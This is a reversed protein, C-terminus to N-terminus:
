TVPEAISERVPIQSARFIRRVERLQIPWYTVVKSGAMCLAIGTLGWRPAVLISSGIIGLSCFILSLAFANVHELGILLQGAAMLVIGLVSIDGTGCGLYHQAHGCSRGLRPYHTQRFGVYHGVIAPRLCAICHNCKQVRRPDVDLRQAGESGWLCFYFARNGYVGSGHALCHDQVGCRFDCSQPGIMQTIIMPQSQYIGLSALQTVLYKGGLSFLRKICTWRVAFPSPKLWHYRRFLFFYNVLSVVARTGSLALVLQPLGGRSQSVVVLAFLALANGAIGWINALFGDQYASYISQQMSLPFNFVLFGLTLACTFQLEHTSTAASVQFVERWPILRFTAMAIIGTVVGVGTLAWFASASYHQAGERDEKGSAEALVNVLANGALGFDTMSMWTLLSSITLWVGYRESGLYHVTLPVSLFSILVNLAKTVFSSSATIGARRYRERGRSASTKTLLVKIKEIRLLSKVLAFRSPSDPEEADLEPM